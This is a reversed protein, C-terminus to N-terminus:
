YGDYEDDQWAFNIREELEAIEIHLDILDETDAGHAYANHLEEKLEKLQNELEYPNEYQRYMLLRGKIRKNAGLYKPYEPTAKVRSLNEM